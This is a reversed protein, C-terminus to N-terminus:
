SFAFALSQDYNHDIRSAPRPKKTTQQEIRRLITFSRARMPRTHLLDVGVCPSQSILRRACMLHPVSIV